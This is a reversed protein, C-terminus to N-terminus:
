IMASNAVLGLNQFWLESSVPVVHNLQPTVPSALGPFDMCENGKSEKPWARWFQLNAVPIVVLFVINQAVQVVAGMLAIHCLSDPISNVRLGAFSVARCLVLVRLFVSVSGWIVATVATCAHPSGLLSIM